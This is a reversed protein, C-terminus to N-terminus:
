RNLFHLALGAGAPWDFKVLEGRSSLTAYATGLGEGGFCINTTIPDGLAVHSTGEGRPDAITIGGNHITAVCVNGASDVALSDFEQFGPAGFVLRGRNASPSERDLV